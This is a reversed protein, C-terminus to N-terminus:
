RFNEEPTTALLDTPPAAAPRTVRLPIGLPHATAWAVLGWDIRQAAEPGAAAALRPELDPPPAAPAPKGAEVADAADQGPHIELWLEGEAQALKVPEDVIAVRTGVPVQEFLAAIDEPYMRLCGHSTRRGVGDPLNTGHIRILGASLDLAFAGLPNDPGAPVRAPLWPKEARVSPPPVWVPDRRKGVVIMTGPKLAFGDRGIGVPFSQVVGDPPRWFLRMEALNVVLPATALEPPPLHASPLLVPRGPPPLWPDLGPNAALMEVFGLDHARAFDMVTQGPPVTANEAMLVAPGPDAAGAGPSEGRAAAGWLVLLSSACAATISPRPVNM